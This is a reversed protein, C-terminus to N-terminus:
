AVPKYHFRFILNKFFESFHFINLSYEILIFSISVLVFYNTEPSFRVLFSYFHVQPDWKFFNFIFFFSYFLCLHPRSLFVSPLLLFNIKLKKIRYNKKRLNVFIQGDSNTPIFVFLTTRSSPEAPTGFVCSKM